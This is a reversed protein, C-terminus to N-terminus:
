RRRRRPLQAEHTILLSEGPGLVESYVTSPEKAVAKRLMRAGFITAWVITWARSGGFLGRVQGRRYLYRWM